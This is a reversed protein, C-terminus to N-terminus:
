NHGRWDQDIEPALLRLMWLGDQGLRDDRLGTLQISAYHIPAGRPLQSLDFQFASQYIQGKFFGAYLFSDRFHNGRDEGSAVWGIDAAAASLTYIRGGPVPTPTSIPLAPLAKAAVASKS